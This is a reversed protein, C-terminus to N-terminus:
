IKNKILASVNAWFGPFSKNVTTYNEITIEKCVSAMVFSSMAMRHDEYTNFFIKEPINTVPYFVLSDKTTECKMGCKELENKLAIIRDTEKNKLTSLGTFNGKVRLAACAFALPQALDPCDTFDYVFNEPITQNTKSIEIGENTFVTEVGFFQFIDKLVADGQISNKKLGNMRIKLEHNVATLAYFYAASSWDNECILEHAAYYKPKVGVRNDSIILDAGCQQMLAATMKIYPLSVPKSTFNIEMGNKLVPGIMMLSSIFQSSIGADLSIKGGELNKGTVKLPLFGEAGTYVIEAGLSRLADVLIGIPRQKMRESGTLTWEGYTISVLSLIFRVVTGADGCNLYFSKGDSIQSILDDMRISDAADSHNKLIVKRGSLYSIVSARNYESKSVPLQVSLEKKVPHFKVILDNEM